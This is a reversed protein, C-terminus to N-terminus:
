AGPLDDPHEVEVLYPVLNGVGGADAAAPVEKGRNSIKPDSWWWRDRVCRGRWLLATEAPSVFSAAVHKTTGFGLGAGAAALPQGGPAVTAGLDVFAEATSGGSVVTIAPGGLAVESVLVWEPRWGGGSHKALIRRDVEALNAVRRVVVRNAQLVFAGARSFQIRLGANGTAIGSIAPDGSGALWTSVEAGDSSGYNYDIPTGTVEATAPIGLAELTTHKVWGSDGLVGVDGLEMPTGPLWVPLREFAGRTEHWFSAILSKM